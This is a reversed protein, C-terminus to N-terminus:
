EARVVAELMKGISKKQDQTCSSFLLSIVYIESKESIVLLATKTL